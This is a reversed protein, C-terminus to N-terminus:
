FFLQLLKWVKFVQKNFLQRQNKPFPKPFDLM